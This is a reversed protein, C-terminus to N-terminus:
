TTTPRHPTVFSPNRPLCAGHALADLAEGCKWDQDCAHHGGPRQRIQEEIDGRHIYVPATSVPIYGKPEVNIDQSRVIVTPITVQEKPPKDIERLDKIMSVIASATAIVGVIASGVLALLLGPKILVDPFFVVSLLVVVVLAIGILLWVWHTKKM